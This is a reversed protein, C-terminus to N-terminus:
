SMFDLDPLPQKVNKKIPNNSYILLATAFLLNKIIEVIYTFFWYKNIEEDSISNALIYIFFSGGLYIFLGIAVWFFYHSYIPQNKVEKLQEYLFFFIFIFILITEIGIPISDFKKDNDAFFYIVQFLFFSVSLIIVILKFIRFRLQQFILAAFFSYELLTFVPYKIKESVHVYNYEDLFLFIFICVCYYVLTLVKKDRGIKRFLILYVLLPLLFSYLLIYFLNEIFKSKAWIYFVKVSKLLWRESFWDEWVFVEFIDDTPKARKVITVKKM